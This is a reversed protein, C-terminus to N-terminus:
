VNRVLHLANHLIINAKIYVEFTFAIETSLWLSHLLIGPDKKKHNEREKLDSFHLICSFVCRKKKGKRKLPPIRAILPRSFTVVPVSQNKYGSLDSCCTPWLATQKRLLWLTLCVPIKKFETKTEVLEELHRFESFADLEFSAANSEMPEDNYIVGLHLKTLLSM